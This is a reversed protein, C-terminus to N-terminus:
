DRWDFFRLYSKNRAIINEVGAIEVIKMLIDPSKSGFVNSERVINVSWIVYNVAKSFRAVVARVKSM